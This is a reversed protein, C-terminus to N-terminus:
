KRLDGATGDQVLLDHGVALPLAVIVVV